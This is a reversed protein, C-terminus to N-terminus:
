FKVEEDLVVKSADILSGDEEGFCKGSEKIYLKMQPVWMDSPGELRIVAPCDELPFFAGTNKEYSDVLSCFINDIEERFVEDTERNEKPAIPIEKRLPTYFILDIHKLSLAAITKSDIIFEPTFGETDKGYHWLTYAINDVTCRDFIVFEDESTAATQVEDILANLIAKQSEKTASKNLSLKQEKIIDRYSKKPRKYMPWEKIVNEILTSKGTSHAGIIAIKM